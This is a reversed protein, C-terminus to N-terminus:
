GAVGNISVAVAIRREGVRAEKREAIATREILSSVRDPLWPQESDFLRNIAM